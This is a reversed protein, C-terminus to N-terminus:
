DCGCRGTPSKGNRRRWARDTRRGLLQRYPDAAKATVRGAELAQQLSEIQRPLAEKAAALLTELDARVMEAETESQCALAVESRLPSCWNAAFGVAVPLDWLERWARKGAPWVDLVATPLKGDAGRVAALDVLLLADADPSMGGLLRDLAASEPRAEGRKALNRLVVEDGTVITRPDVIAMPHPWRQNALQRCVLGSMGIDIPKGLNALAAADQGPALEIVVASRQPWAAPDAAAWTM